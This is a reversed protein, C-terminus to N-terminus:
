CLDPRREFVGEHVISAALILSMVAGLARKTNGAGYEGDEMDPGMINLLAGASCVQAHVDQCSLLTALPPVADLDRIVVRSTLERSVNQLAGAASGAVGVNAHGLLEVLRPIGAYKRILPISAADSSLNHIAGVARSVVNPADRMSLLPLLSQIGEHERVARRGAPQYCISQIAGAANAQLLQSGEAQLFEVLQEVGRTQLLLGVNQPEYCINLLANAGEAAVQPNLPPALNVLVARIGDPGVVARNDAKRSLIKLVKLLLLVAVADGQVSPHLLLDAFPAVPDRSAARFNASRNPDENPEVFSRLLRLLQSRQPPEALAKNACVAAAVAQATPGEQTM